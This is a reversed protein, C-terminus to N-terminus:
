KLFMRLSKRRRVWNNSVRRVIDDDPLEDFLMLYFIGEPLPEEGGPYKPLKKQLEPISYGRFRIGENPDLKSTETVLAKMGRMGGYLQNIKIEGIVTDGHEAIFDKVEKQRADLKSRFHDKLREMNEKM